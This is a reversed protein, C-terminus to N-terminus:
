EDRRRLQLFVFSITALSPTTSASADFFVTTSTNPTTPSFSLVATPGPLASVTVTKDAVGKEGADDTVTLTVVYSGPTDFAKVIEMGSRGSGGGGFDWTYSVIQRGAAATSKAATFTIDQFASPTTPSYSFDATPPALAQVAITRSLTAAAGSAHTVTLTVVYSGSADYAHTVTEGSGTANDGFTWAFSCASGCRVGQDITGSADFTVPTKIIIATPTVVFAPVPVGGPLNGGASTTSPTLIMDRSCSASLVVGACAFLLSGARVPTSAITMAVDFITM